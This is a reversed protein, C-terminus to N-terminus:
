RALDQTSKCSSVHLNDIVAQVAESKTGPTATLALVRFHPNKAMLFRVMTCYAYDGSAKHAEDVVVLVVKSADLRGRKLDSVVTQPTCYFVRRERWAPERKAGIDSGTMECSDENPIGGISHCAEIQQAVLPKTPATFIIKGQPFCRYFNMMVVAAIFTKGLGTPLSCLVNNFLAKHAINFQYDRIDKGQVIPYVWHSAAQLDIDIRMPPANPATLEPDQEEQLCAPLPENDIDEEDEYFPDEEDFLRKKGKKKQKASKGWGLQSWVSRDWKKCVQIFLPSILM